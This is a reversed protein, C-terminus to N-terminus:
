VSSWNLVASRAATSLRLSRRWSANQKMGSSTGSRLRNAWGWRSDRHRSRVTTALRTRSLAGLARQIPPIIEISQASEAVRRRAIPLREPEVGALNDRQAVQRGHQRLLPLERLGL